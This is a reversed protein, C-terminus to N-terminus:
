AWHRAVSYGLAAAGLGGGVHLAAHLLAWAWQGGQLLRLSEASFASFTTLGGLFGTVAFLRWVAQEPRALFVLAAGVALGGLVNVVLTGLPLSAHRPNLWLGVQWRLLAGLAAGGAVALSHTM